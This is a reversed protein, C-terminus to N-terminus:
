DKKIETEELLAVIARQNPFKCLHLETKVGSNM